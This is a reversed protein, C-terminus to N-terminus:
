DSIGFGCSPCFRPRAQPNLEEGGHPCFKSSQGVRLAEVPTGETTPIGVGRVVAIGDDGQKVGLVYDGIVVVGPGYRDGVTINETILRETSGAADSYEVKWTNPVVGPTHPIFPIEWERAEGSELIAAELIPIVSIERGVVTLTVKLGFAPGSGVNSVNGRLISSHEVVLNGFDTHLRIESVPLQGLRDELTEWVEHSTEADIGESVWRLFETSTEGLRALALAARKGFLQDFGPIQSILMPVGSSDGMEALLLACNRRVTETDDDLALILVETM